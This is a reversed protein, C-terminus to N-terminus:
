APTPVRGKDIGHVWLMVVLGLPLMPLVARIDPPAPALGLADPLWTGLCFLAFLWFLLHGWWRRGRTTALYLGMLILFIEGEVILSASRHNWLGLGLKPDGWVLPLDPRHTLFDLVWHSLVLGGIWLAGTRDRKWAFWGGGFLLAWGASELLGHSFPYHQLDLANVVTIGPQVAGREVGVLLLLLWLFDAWVAGFWLLALPVRPAQSRAAFAVAYHAIYM